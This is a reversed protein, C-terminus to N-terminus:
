VERIVNALNEAVNNSQFQNSAVFPVAICKRTECATELSNNDAVFADADEPQQCKLLCKHDYEYPDYYTPLGRSICLFKPRFRHLSNLIDEDSFSLYEFKYVYLFLSNIFSM